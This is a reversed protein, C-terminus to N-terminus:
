TRGHNRLESSFPEVALDFLEKEEASWLGAFSSFDANQPTPKVPPFRHEKLAAWDESSVLVASSNEGVIHIPRHYAAAEAMVDNLHGEAFELAITTM